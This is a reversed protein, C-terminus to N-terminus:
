TTEECLEKMFSTKRGTWTERTASGSIDAGAEFSRRLSDNYAGAKM